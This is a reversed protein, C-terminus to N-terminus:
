FNPMKDETKFATLLTYSYNGDWNNESHYYFWGIVMGITHRDRYVDNNESECLIIVM